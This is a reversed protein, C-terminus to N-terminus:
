GGAVFGAEINEPELVLAKSIEVVEGFGVLKRLLDDLIQFRPEAAEACHQSPQTLGSLRPSTSWM